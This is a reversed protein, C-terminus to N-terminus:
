RMRRANRRSTRSGTFRNDYTSGEKSSTTNSIFTGNRIADLVKVDRAPLSFKKNLQEETKDLQARTKKIARKKAEIRKDLKGSGLPKGYNKIDREKKSELEKRLTILEKLQKNLKETQKIKLEQPKM